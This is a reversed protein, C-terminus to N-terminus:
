RHNIFRDGFLLESRHFVCAYAVMVLAFAMTRSLLILLSRMRRLKIM